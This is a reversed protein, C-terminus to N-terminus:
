RGSFLMVKYRNIHSYNERAYTYMKKIWEDMTPCRVQNWLKVTTFLATIFMPTCTNRKYTSKYVKLYM